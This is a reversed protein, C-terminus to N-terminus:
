GAAPPTLATDTATFVELIADTVSPSAAAVALAVLVILLAYEVIDQGEDDHIFRSLLELM